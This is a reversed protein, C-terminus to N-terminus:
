DDPAGLNTLGVVVLSAIESARYSIALQRNQELTLGNRTVEWRADSAADQLEVLEPSGVRDPLGLWGEPDVGLATAVDGAAGGFGGAVFVPQGAQISLTTEEIVGPIRGKYGDRQGGLVVRADTENTMRQRLATLSRITTDVDVPDTNDRESEPHEIVNGDVDLYVYQGLMGIQGRLDLIADATLHAHESWAVFGTFPRDRSGYRECEHILFATYGDRDLHGGYVLRGKAILAARAVEGLAM